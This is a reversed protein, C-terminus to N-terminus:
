VSVDTVDFSSPDHVSTFALVQSEGSEAAAAKRHVCVKVPEVQNLAYRRLAQEQLADDGSRCVKEM